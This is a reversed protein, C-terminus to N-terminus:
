PDVFPDRGSLNLLRGGQSRGATSKDIEIEGRDALRLLAPVLSDNGVKVKAARLQDTLDKQSSYEGGHTSLWRVIEDALADIADPTTGTAEDITPTSLRAVSVVEGTRTSDLVFSGLYYWTEDGRGQAAGLKDVEGYRDKVCFLASSGIRDRRLPASSSAQMRFGVGDVEDLWATSGFGHRENQRDRAKPPHGLSLVAAGVRVFPSVLTARYAAVAEPKDVPWGHRGCAANIGDLVVLAPAVPLLEIEAIIEDVRWGRDCDFWAFLKGVQEESAGMDRLRGVTGAPSAEEFHLYCVLSGRRMEELAHWLALWSKGATNSAIVSHWRGPYLLRKADDREGGACPSPAVYEGRWFPVLDIRRSASVPATEVVGSTAVVSLPESVGGTSGFPVADGGITAAPLTAAEGAVRALAHRWVGHLEAWGLGSAAGASFFEDAVRGADLGSWPANALEVLRCAVRFATANRTGEIAGVLEALLEGLAAGAYRAGRAREDPTWGSIDDSRSAGTAIRDGAPSILPGVTSAPVAAPANVMEVLWDPGANGAHTRPDALWGYGGRASVSPPLVVQGGVGRVDLGRPLRPSRGMGGQVNAIEVGAPLAFHWHFGGSGTRVHADHGGMTLRNVLMRASEEAHAPDYDLTWIGSVPGTAVGWNALPLASHVAYLRADDRVLQAPQQWARARPHKGASECAAGNQCSCAGGVVGGVDHLPVLAWGLSIYLSLLAQKTDQM